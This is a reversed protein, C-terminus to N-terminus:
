NILRMFSVLEENSLEIDRENKKLQIFSEVESRVKGHAPLRSALDELYAFFVEPQDWSLNHEDQILEILYTSIPTGTYLEEIFHEKCDIKNVTTEMAKLYSDPDHDNPLIYILVNRDASLTPIAEIAARKSAKIGAEDGDFCLIVNSTYKFLESFAESSLATGMAAVGQDIGFEAMAIVDMYGEVAVVERLKKVNILDTQISQYLNYITDINFLVSKKNFLPSDSGNLYKSSGTSELIRGGFSIVSGNKDRIPIMVRNRFRDYPEGTSEREAVLGAIKLISIFQDECQEPTMSVGLAKQLMIQWRKTKSQSVLRTYGEPAFGMRFRKITSDSLGRTVKLYDQISSEQSLHYEFKECASELVLHVPDLVDVDEHPKEHYKGSLFDAINM